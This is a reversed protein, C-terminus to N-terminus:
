IHYFNGYKEHMARVASINRGHLIENAFWLRSFRALFPGPYERLGCRDLFYPVAYTLGMLIIPALIFYKTDVAQSLRWENTADM